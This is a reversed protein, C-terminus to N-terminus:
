HSQVLKSTKTTGTAESTPGMTTTHAHHVVVERTGRKDRRNAPEGDRMEGQGIVGKKAEGEVGGGAGAM